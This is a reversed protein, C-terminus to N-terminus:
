SCSRTGALGTRLGGPLRQNVGGIKALEAFGQLCNENGPDPWTHQGPMPLLVLQVRYDNTDISPKQVGDCQASIMDRVNHREM